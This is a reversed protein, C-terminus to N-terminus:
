AGDTGGTKNSFPDLSALLLTADLLFIPNEEHFLKTRAFPTKGEEELIPELSEPDVSLIRGVTGVALAIAGAESALVIVRRDRKRAGLGLYRPLDLVPLVQSHFNIAGRFFAPAQPIYYLSPSEVIEQVQVVDLGYPTDGLAFVLVQEM